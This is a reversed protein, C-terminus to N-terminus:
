NLVTHIITIGNLILDNVKEELNFSFDRDLLRDLFVQIPEILYVQQFPNPQALDQLDNDSDFLSNNIRIGIGIEILIRPFPLDNM